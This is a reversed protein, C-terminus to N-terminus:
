LIQRWMAMLLHGFMSKGAKKEVHKFIFALM